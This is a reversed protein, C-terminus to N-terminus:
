ANSKAMLWAIVPDRFGLEVVRSLDVGFLSPTHNYITQGNRLTIWSDAYGYLGDSYDIAFGCDQVPQRNFQEPVTPQVDIYLTGGDTPSMDPIKKVVSVGHLAGAPDVTVDTGSQAAYVQWTRQGHQLIRIDGRFGPPVGIGIRVGPDSVSAAAKLEETFQRNFQTFTIHYTRHFAVDDVEGLKLRQFYALVSPYGYRQLLYQVSLWDQLELDYSQSNQLVTSESATLPLLRNGHVADLVTEAMQRAYGSYGVWGQVRGQAYMGQSVALGENLWSPLEGVNDNFLVHTLEHAITNAVDGPTPNQFMAVIISNGLTFGGTDASLANAQEHSLGVKGLATAYDASNQALYLTVPQGTGMHLDSTVTRVIHYRSLLQSVTSLVSPPTSTGAAVLTLQVKAQSFAGETTGGLSSGIVFTRDKYSSASPKTAFRSGTIQPTVSRPLGSTPVTLRPHGPIPLATEPQQASVDPHLWRMVPKGWLPNETDLIVAISLFTMTWAFATVALHMFTDSRKAM